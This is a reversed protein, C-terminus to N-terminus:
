RSVEPDSAIVVPGGFRLSKNISLTCLSVGSIEDISTPGRSGGEVHESFVKWEEQHGKDQRFWSRASTKRENGVMNLTRFNDIVAVIGGGFVEIREKSFAGNGNAVYSITGISGDAFEINVMLNDDRYRNNNALARACIQRPLAGALFTLFDVFHCVEGIIRGGGQEPDQVWHDRPIYGANVRYHMVLPEHVDALFEKLKLAMPAFRRNYGVMLIQSPPQLNFTPPSNRNSLPQLNSTLPLYRDTPPHLNSSSPHSVVSSSAERAIPESLGNVERYTEIIESLEQENLCLPKEVFVHKGAKLAAVVQRAHLHHRTAIVVTNVDPDSLIKSEDTAAYHFGFKRAAHDASIGSAACVGVFEIGKVRKMAPLLTGKAFEGAGLLGIRVPKPNSTPPLFNSTNPKLNSAIVEIRDDDIRNLVKRSLDPNDPYTLLIGLYPENTKGTILDYAKTAEEIPFRHTILPKVNVKEEALLQVFAEMNRNETWRVYGIPYDRGKEEYNSDYRGPGYSRSIKFTLEKEYYTKRPIEMGVSGIAVVIGRDRAVEGASAVPDNNKTSATILAADAGHGGTLQSVRTAFQSNNNLAADCGLQEALRCRDPNPDMGVVRCGAAKALQVTLLGVLGLGIVGVTEGLHVNALRFGQLAIAGLTTFAASEFDVKDPIKMALIRPVFIVESHSAYGAGSCAVREGIRFDEGNEGVSIVTGASSYGLAAPNDLRSRLAEITSFLGDKKVKEMVRRVLDPRELAKGLLSKQSLEVMQRETGASVLSVVNQVLVGGPRSAPAPIKAVGLNGTRYNQLISKM